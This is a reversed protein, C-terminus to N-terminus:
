KGAELFQGLNDPRIRVDTMVKGSQGLRRAPRGNIIM